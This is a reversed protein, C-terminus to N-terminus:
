QTTELFQQVTAISWTQWQPAPYLDLSGPEGLVRQWLNQDGLMAWVPQPKVDHLWAHGRVEWINGQPYAWSVAIKSRIRDPRLTGLFNYANGWAPQWRHYRWENKLAPAVPIARYKSVLPSVRTAIREMGPTQTWWGPKQPQFQYRFFVFHRLDPLKNGLPNTGRLQWNAAYEAIELRQKIQVHGYELKEIRFLGYGLQSKAGLNGWQELFLLLAILQSRIERDGDIRLAFTGMRGPPLFWGRNRGPPRINLMQDAPTWAIETRDDIVALQFQRRWGTCGFIQCVDCINAEQLAEQLPKGDKKAREFRRLNEQVLGCSHTTPDCAYGGLGRVIAEYWWRLSGILGTEHIRDMKGTEIGGTWLPTLTKLTIELPEM